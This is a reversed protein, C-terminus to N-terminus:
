AQVGNKWYSGSPFQYKEISAQHMEAGVGPQLPATYSGNQIDTPVLFHEHLHDLFEVIREPHHGTVAIADFMALHQVMESTAVRTPAIGVAIKAHGVVDTPSTPEKIWTLKFEKLENIWTIAEDVDWVQTADIAIAFDPGVLDRLKAEDDAKYDVQRNLVGGARMHFVGYNPDLWRLQSDEPVGADTNILLYTGSYDPDQNMADSGDLSYSTTFRVDFTEISTIKAM